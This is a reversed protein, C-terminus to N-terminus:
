KSGPKGFLTRIKEKRFGFISKIDKTIIPSLLNDGFVGLPMRYIVKDKLLTGEALDEFTHTHDWKKYPGKLQIDRFQSGPHWDLIKSRWKVAVGHINLRYDIETGSQIQETSKKLVHFNLFDPTLIELNKIESFFPFVVKRPQPVWQSSQFLRDHRSEKWAFLDKFAHDLERFQFRFEQSELRDPKIRQSSLLIRAMEGMALDLAFKPVPFLVSVKLHKALNTTFIHNTVPEPAVANYAGQFTTDEIARLYISVLDRIDIWSMWQNGSSLRGGLGKEFLPIM